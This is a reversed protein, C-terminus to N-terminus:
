ILSPPHFFPSSAAFRYFNVYSDVARRQHFFPKELYFEDTTDIFLIEIEAQKMKRDSGSNESQGSAKALEKKLHCKGNCDLNDNDKNICLEATIFDYNVVYSLLPLAPKLLFITAFIFVASKIM